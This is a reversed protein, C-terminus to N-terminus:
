EPMIFPFHLHWLVGESADNAKNETKEEVMVFITQHFNIFSLCDKNEWKSLFYFETEEQWIYKILAMEFPTFFWTTDLSAM